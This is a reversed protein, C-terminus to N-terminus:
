FTFAIHTKIKKFECKMRPVIKPFWPLKKLNNYDRNETNNEHNNTNNKKNNYKILLNELVQKSHGNEVLMDILFIEKRKIYIESCILHARYPFGKFVSKIINPNICSTPKIHM